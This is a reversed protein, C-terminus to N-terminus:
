DFSVGVSGANLTFTDNQSLDRTKSLFGTAIIHDTATSDGAETSVFNAVIAYADVSDNTGTVDFPIGSSNETQWNGGSSNAVFTATQRTYSGATPETTINALDTTDSAADTANNYLMVTFSGTMANKVNYEEGYNTLNGAM